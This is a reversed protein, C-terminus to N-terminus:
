ASDFRHLAIILEAEGRSISCQAALSDPDLGQRALEIAKGYASPADRAPAPAVIIPDAAKQANSSPVPALLSQQLVDLRLVLDDIQLQLVTTDMNNSSPSIKRLKLLFMVAEAVYVFLVIAGLLLIERWTVVISEM